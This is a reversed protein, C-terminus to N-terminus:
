VTTEGAVRASQNCLNRGPMRSSPPPRTAWVLLSPRGLLLLSTFAQVQALHPHQLPNGSPQGLFVVVPRGEDCRHDCVSCWPKGRDGACLWWICWSETKFIWCYSTTCKLTCYAIYLVTKWAGSQGFTVQNAIFSFIFMDIHWWFRLMFGYSPTM